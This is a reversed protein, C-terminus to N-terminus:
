PCSQATQGFPGQSARLRLVLSTPRVGVLWREARGLPLIQFSEGPLTAFRSYIHYLLLCPFCNRWPREARPNTTTGAPPACPFPWFAFYIWYTPFVMNQALLLCAHQSCAQFLLPRSYRFQLIFSNCNGLQQSVIYPMTVPLSDGLTLQSVSACTTYQYAYPLSDVLCNSVVCLYAIGSM